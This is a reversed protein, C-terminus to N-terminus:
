VHTEGTVLLASISTTTVLVAEQELRTRLYEAFSYVTSASEKVAFLNELVLEVITSPEQLGNWYGVATFITAGEFGFRELAKRVELYVFEATHHGGTNTNHGIAVRYLYSM